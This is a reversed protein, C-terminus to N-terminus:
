GEVKAAEEKIRQSDSKKTKNRNEQEEKEVKERNAKVMNTIALVRAEAAERGGKKASGRTRSKKRALKLKKRHIGSRAM